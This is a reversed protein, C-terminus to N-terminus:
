RLVVVVMVIRVLLALGVVHLALSTALSRYDRRRVPMM